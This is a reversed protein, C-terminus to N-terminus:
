ESSLLTQKVLEEQASSDGRMARERLAQLDKNSAPRIRNKSTIGVDKEEDNAKKADILPQVDALADEYSVGKGKAITQILEFQDVVDPHAALFDQRDLREQIARLADNDTVPQKVEKVEPKEKTKEEQGVKGVFSSLEKYHKIADEEDKFNRGSIEELKEKFGGIVNEKGAENSPDGQTEIAEGVPADTESPKNEEM